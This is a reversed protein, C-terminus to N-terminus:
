SAAAPPSVRGRKRAFIADAKINQCRLWLKKAIRAFAELDLHEHEIHHNRSVYLEETMSAPHHMSHSHAVFTHRLALIQKHLPLDSGLEKTPSVGTLKSAAQAGKGKENGSFPRAYCVVACLLAADRELEGYKYRGALEIFELARKFDHASIHTRYLDKDLKQYTPATMKPKGPASDAWLSACRVPVNLQPHALKYPRAYM